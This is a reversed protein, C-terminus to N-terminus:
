LLKVIVAAAEARSAFDQPRFTNDPYGSMLKKASVTKVADMAWYSLQDADSFDQWSDLATMKKALCIMLAMQERTVPVDPAFNNGSTGHVIGNAAATAIYDKAWHEGTDAFAAGAEGTLKLAKVLIACFEARTITDDPKFTNDPYGNMIGAAVLQKIGAEAWHGGIDSCGPTQGPTMQNTAQEDSPVSTTTGGTDIGKTTFAFTYTKGLKLGNNFEFDPGIEIVYTTAPQLSTSKLTLGLPAHATIRKFWWDTVEMYYNDVTIPVTVINPLVVPQSTQKNYFKVNNELNAELTKFFGFPFYWVLEVHNYDILDDFQYEMKSGQDSILTAAPECGLLKAMRAASGAGQGQDTGSEGYAVLPIAGLLLTILMVVILGSRCSISRILM